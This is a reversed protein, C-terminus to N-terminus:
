TSTVHRGVDIVHRGFRSVIEHGRAQSVWFGSAAQAGLEDAGVLTGSPALCTVTMSVPAPRGAWGERHGTPVGARSAPLHSGPRGALHPCVPM